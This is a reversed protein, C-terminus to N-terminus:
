NVDHFTGGIGWRWGDRRVLTKDPVLSIRAHLLGLADTGCAPPVATYNEGLNFRVGVSM